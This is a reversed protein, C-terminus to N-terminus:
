CTAEPQMNRSFNADQGFYVIEGSFISSARPWLSRLFYHPSPAFWFGGFHCAVFPFQLLVLTNIPHHWLHVGPFIWPPPIASHLLWFAAVQPWAWRGFGGWSGDAATTESGRKEREPSLCDHHFVVAWEAPFAGGGKWGCQKSFLSFPRCITILHVCSHTLTLASTRRRAVTFPRPGAHTHTHAVPKHKNGPWFSRFFVSLRLFFPPPAHSTLTKSFLPFGNILRSPPSDFPTSGNPAQLEYVQWTIPTEILPGFYAAPFPSVPFPPFVQKSILKCRSIWLSSRFSFDRDISIYHSTYNFTV